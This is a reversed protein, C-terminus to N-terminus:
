SPQVTVYRGTTWDYALTQQTSGNELHVILRHGLELRPELLGCNQPLSMHGDPFKYVGVGSRTVSGNLGDMLLSSSVGSFAVSACKPLIAELHGQPTLTASWPGGGMERVCGTFQSIFIVNLRLGWGEDLYEPSGHTMPAHVVYVTRGDQPLAQLADRLARTATRIAFSKSAASTFRVMHQCVTGALIAMLTVVVWRPFRVRVSPHGFACVGFFLFVFTFISAGFRSSQAFLVGPVLAVIMWVLLGRQLRKEPTVGPVRRSVMSWTAYGLCAWVAVNAVLSILFRSTSPTLKRSCLFVAVADLSGDQVLGTPWFMLGRVVRLLLGSISDPVAYVGNLVGGFAYTRLLMWLAIILVLSAVPFGIRRRMLVISLAAAVPAGLAPEKTFVALGVLGVTLAVREACLASFAGLLLVAAGVDFQYPISFLGWNLFAPNFLFLAGLLWKPAGEAVGGLKLLRVFLVLGVFQLAFFSAFHLSYRNGFFLYNVYTALNGVPRLFNTFQHFWEPYVVFYASFGRTCWELPGQELTGQLYSPEDGIPFHDAYDLRYCVAYLSSLIGFMSVWFCAGAGFIKDRIRGSSCKDAIRLM